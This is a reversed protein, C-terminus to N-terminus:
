RNEMFNRLLALEVEKRGLLRELEAIKKEYTKVSENGSFIEAGSELFRRKWKSLSTPHVGYARAIEVDEKDLTLCELVIQFKQKATYDRKTRKAM